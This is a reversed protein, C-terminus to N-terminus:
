PKSFRSSVGLPLRTLEAGMVGEMEGLRRVGLPAVSPSM